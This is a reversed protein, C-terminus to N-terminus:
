AQAKQAATNIWGAVAHWQDPSLPSDSRTAQELADDYLAQYTDSQAKRRIRDESMASRILVPLPAIGGDVANAIASWRQHFRQWWEVTERLDTPAAVSHRVAFVMLAREEIMEAIISADTSELHITIDDREPEQEPEPEPAPEPEKRETTVIRLKGDGEFSFSHLQEGPKEREVHEGIARWLTEFHSIADPTTPTM